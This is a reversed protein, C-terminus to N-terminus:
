AQMKRTEGHCCRTVAWYPYVSEAGTLNWYREVAVATDEPVREVGLGAGATAGAVATAKEKVEPLKLEPGLHFERMTLEDGGGESAKM